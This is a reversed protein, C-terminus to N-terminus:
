AIYGFEGDYTYRYQRIAYGVDTRDPVVDYGTLTGFNDYYYTYTLLYVATPDSKSGNTETASVLRGSEDYVYNNIIVNGFLDHRYYRQVLRNEADYTYSVDQVFEYMAEYRQGSVCNGNEDYSFSCTYTDHNTTIQTEVLQGAENFVPLIKAVITDGPQTVIISTLMGSDDYEMQFDDFGVHDLYGYQLMVDMSDTKQIRGQSDYTYSCWRNEKKNGLNDETCLDIQTLKTPIFGFHSAIEASDLYDGLELFEKHLYKAAAEGYLLSKSNAKKCSGDTLYSGLGEIAADYRLQQLAAEDLVPAETPATTVPITEETELVTEASPAASQRAQVAPAEKQNKGCGSITFLLVAILLLAVIRKM